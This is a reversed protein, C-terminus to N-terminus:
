FFKKKKFWYILGGVVCVSILIFSMYGYPSSLEPMNKFNMGYWGTMLTLPMFITTVVTFFQMTKNLEYNLKSEHLQSMQNLLERLMQVDAVLREIRRTYIDFYRMDDETFIHHHNMELEEGINVLHSYYNRLMLLEKGLRKMRRTWQMSKSDDLCELEEIEDQLEEIYDDDKSMLEILFYYVLRTISVGRQLVYDCSSQFVSQIHEDEDDIIVVLFLNKFIFFALADQKQFIDRANILHILGYYYDQHPVIMNKHCSATKECELITKSSIHFDHHCQKLEELSMMALYTHHEEIQDITCEKKTHDVQYIM